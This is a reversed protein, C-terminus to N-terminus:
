YGTPEGNVEIVRPIVKALHRIYRFFLFYQCNIYTFMKIQILYNIVQFCGCQFNQISKLLPFNHNLGPQLM